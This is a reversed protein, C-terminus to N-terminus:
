DYYDEIDLGDDILLENSLNKFKNEWGKRQTKITSFFLLFKVCTSKVVNIFSIQV